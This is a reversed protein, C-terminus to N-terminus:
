SLRSVIPTCVSTQPAVSTGAEIVIFPATRPVTMSAVVTPQRRDGDSSSRGPGQPPANSRRSIHSRVRHSLRSTAATRAAIVL